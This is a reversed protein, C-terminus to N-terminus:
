KQLLRAEYFPVETIDLSIIPEDRNDRLRLLVGKKAAPINDAKLTFRVESKDSFKIDVRYFKGIM